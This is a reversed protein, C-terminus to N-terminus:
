WVIEVKNKTFLSFLILFSSKTILISILYIILVKQYLITYHLFIYVLRNICEFAKTELLLYVSFYITKVDKLM